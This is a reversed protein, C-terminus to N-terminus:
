YGQQTTGPIEIYELPIFTKVMVEAQHQKFIPSTRSVYNEQTAPINVRKLDDLTGGHRHNNDTANIDSFLTGELCAVDIKVRLLVIDYGKQELVWKMPHDTCFSLRVYDSLGHYSDLSRSTGNGGPYPITIGHDECYHWSYLGGQKKISELNRRDTFHYFCRVGNSTLHNRIASANVKQTHSISYLRQKEERAKRAAEERKRREEAERVERARREAEERERRERAEKERREREEAERKEQVKREVLEVVEEESYEKRLSIYVIVPKFQKSQQLIDQCTKMLRDNNSLLEVVAITSPKYQTIFEIDRIDLYNIGKKTLSDKLNKFHFEEIADWTTGLGSDALVVVCDEGLAKILAVTQEYGASNFYRNCSLFESIEGANRKLYGYEWYDISQSLCHASYFPQWIKFKYAVTEGTETVGEMSVTYHYYGFNPAVSKCINPITDTFESQRKAWSQMLDYEVSISEFKKFVDEPIKIIKENTNHVPSGRKISSREYVSYIEDVSRMASRLKKVLELGNPYKSEITKYKKDIEAQKRRIEDLIETEELQLVRVSLQLVKEISEESYVSSLGLRKKIANPYKKCVDNAQNRRKELREREKRKQELIKEHERRERERQEEISRQKSQWEYLSKSVRRDLEYDSMSSFYYDNGFWEKYADPYQRKLSQVQEIKEKRRRKQASEIGIKVFPGIFIYLFGAVVAIGILTGLFEM